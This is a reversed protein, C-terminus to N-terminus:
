YSSAICALDPIMISDLEMSAVRLWERWMKEKEHYTDFKTVGRHILYLIDDDDLLMAPPTNIFAGKEIMLLALDKNGVGYALYLGCNLDDAGKEIIALVLDNHGEMCAMKLGHNVDNAGIEIMFLALDKHGKVCAGSLGGNLDNAGNKIMLLAIDKHGGKCANHLGSNKDVPEHKLLWNLM